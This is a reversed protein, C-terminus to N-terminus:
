RTVVSKVGAIAVFMVLGFLVIAGIPFLLPEGIAQFLNWAGSEMSSTSIPTVNDFM